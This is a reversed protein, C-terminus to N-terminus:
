TYVGYLARDLVELVEDAGVDTDLLRLPVEGALARNPRTLWRLAAARDGLVYSAHAAVRALRLVRESEVPTLRAAKRRQLSRSSLQLVTQVEKLSLDLESVVARLAEYPLGTRVMDVYDAQARPGLGLTKRGGLFALVDPAEAGVSPSAMHSFM